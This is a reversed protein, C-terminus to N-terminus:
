GQTQQRMARLQQNILSDLRPLYWPVLEELWRRNVAAAVSDGKFRNFQYYRTHAMFIASDLALVSDFVTFCVDIKRMDFLNLAYQNLIYVYPPQPSLALAKKYHSIAEANRGRSYQDLGLKYEEIVEVPLDPEIMGEIPKMRKYIVELRGKVQPNDPTYYWGITRYANRFQPYLCLAKEAPASPKVGTSFLIYDPERKLLYKSNHKSEKWTSEMGPIPEESNRAITSDTLGVMDIIDHGILEYGFVGITPLAVSFDSTDYSKISEAMFSMKKIFERESINYNKVFQDPLYYTFGLAAAGIVFFLLEQNKLTLKNFLIKLSIGALLAYFPIVPLFFRHVKLVDGGVLLIYGTYLVTFYWITKQTQTLKKWLILPIVLFLGWFGYHGMFRWVYEWGNALQTMNMGTKAYFPNPLISGYYFLKFGVYPLSLIFATLASYLTFRPLKRTSLIEIIIFLGTVMAGEPRIWAAMLISWIFLYNKKTYWYFSLGVMMAFAATELGAISWYAYSQNVAVLLIPIFPLIVSNNEPFIKKTLLFTVLLLLAGCIYGTIKSILIYGLGLTGWLSLYMVWGFNTFGEVREGINFVLGDGNLFNAVYRYSIYADDQTFNLIVTFVTYIVAAPIVPLMYKYITKM